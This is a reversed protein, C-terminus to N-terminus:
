GPHAGDLRLVLFGDLKIENVVQGVEVAEATGILQERTRPLLCACIPAIEAM